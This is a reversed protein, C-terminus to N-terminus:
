PVTVPPTRPRVGTTTCFRWRLTALEAQARARLRGSPHQRGFFVRVDLIHHRLSAFLVYEPVNVAPQGEWGRDHRFEVLKYPLRRTPSLDRKPARGYDWAAVVIGDRPLAALTRDPFVGVSEHFTATTAEAIRLGGATTSRTKWGDGATLRVPRCRSRGAHGSHVGATGPHCCGALSVLLAAALRM